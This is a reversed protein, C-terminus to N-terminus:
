LGTEGIHAAVATLEMRGSQRTLGLLWGIWRRLSGARPSNKLWQAASAVRAHGKAQAWWVLSNLLNNPNPQWRVNRLSWGAAQLLAALSPRSYHYLHGPLQLAYWYEGFLKRDFANADPVVGVLYGHPKAWQHMKRLAAVPEHLHELVMWAAIVDASHPAIAAAEVTSTQVRLGLSRARAAAAESFEVGETTWGRNQMELLYAGAACGVELLHGPPIDPLRRSDRGLVKAIRAKVRHRWKLKKALGATVQYPAYDEPYYAGITAATPRPNTRMLGCQRCKVVRFRGPIHHLRDGAELVPDDGAACGLPCARDELIVGDPLSGTAIATNCSQKASGAAPPLPETAESQQLSPM